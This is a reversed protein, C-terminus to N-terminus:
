IPFSTFLFLPDQSECIPFIKLIILSKYYEQRPQQHTKQFTQASNKKRYWQVIKRKRESNSFYSHNSTGWQLYSQDPFNHISEAYYVWPMWKCSIIDFHHGHFFFMCKKTPLCTWFSIPEWQHHSNNSIIYEPLFDISESYFAGKQVHTGTYGLEIANLRRWDLISWSEHFGTHIWKLAAGRLHYRPSHLLSLGM